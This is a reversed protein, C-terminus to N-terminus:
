RSQMLARVRELDAPTDVAVTAHRSRVMRVPVGHELFRLMDVSEAKEHPTPALRAFQSLAGVRFAILGLQKCFQRPHDGMAGPIPSRSFYLADGRQDMVVKVVDRGQAQQEDIDLYLNSVQVTPDAFPQLVEEIQRPDTMPEDGQVMVVVDFTEGRAALVATAEECRDSAREHRDSTIIGEGGRAAIVDIIQQDCTAVITKTLLPSASTREYVHEIMTRDGIM